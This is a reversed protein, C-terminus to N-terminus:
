ERGESPTGVARAPKDWYREIITCAGYNQFVMMDDSYGVSFSTRVPSTLLSVGLSRVRVFESTVAESEIHRPVVVHVLGVVHTNGDADVYSHACGTIQLLLLVLALARLVSGFGQAVGEQNAVFCRGM